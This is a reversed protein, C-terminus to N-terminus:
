AVGWGDQSFGNTRKHDFNLRMVFGRPDGGITVSAAYHLAIEQAKTKAKEDLRNRRDEDEPTWTAVSRRLTADYRMIGNCADVARRAVGKGIRILALADKAARHPAVTGYPQGTRERFAARLDPNSQLWHSAEMLAAALEMAHQSKSM